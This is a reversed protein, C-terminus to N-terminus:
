ITPIGLVNCMNIEWQGTNDYGEVWLYCKNVGFESQATSMWNICEQMSRHRPPTGLRMGLSLKSAPIGLRIAQRLRTKVPEMSTYGDWDYYQQGFEDLLGANNLAPGVQYYAEIAGGGPACTIWFNNGFLSRCAAAYDLHQQLTPMTGTSEFDFDIGDLGGIDNALALTEQARQWPNPMTVYDDAGGLSLIIRKGQSRWHALRAVFAAKGASTYGPLHLAGSGGLGFSIRVNTANITSPFLANSSWVKMYIGVQPNTLTGGGGTSPAAARQIVTYRQGTGNENIAEVWINYIHDPSLNTLNLSTSSASYVDNWSPVPQGAPAEWGIRYGTITGNPQAPPTWRVLITSSTSSDITVTPASPTAENGGSVTTTSQTLSSEAGIGTANVAQIKVTYAQGSTLNEATYSRASIDGISVPYGAVLQGGADLLTVQYSTITGGPQTPATWAVSLTNPSAHMIKAIPENPVTPTPQTGITFRVKPGTTWTAQGDLSYSVYAVYKKGDILSGQTGSLSYIGNVTTGNSLAVSYKWPFNPDNDEAISINLGDFTVPETTAITGEVTVSTGSVNVSVAGPTIARPVQSHKTRQLRRAQTM